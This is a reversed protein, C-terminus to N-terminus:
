MGSVNLMAQEVEFLGLLLADLDSLLQLLIGGEEVISFIRAENRHDLVLRQSIQGVM